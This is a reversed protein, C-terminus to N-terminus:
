KKKSEVVNIQMEVGLQQNMVQQINQLVEPSIVPKSVQDPKVVIHAELQPKVFLADPLDLNLKLVVANSPISNKGSLKDLMKISPKGRYYSQAPTIVLYKTVNM